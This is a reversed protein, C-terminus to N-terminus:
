SAPGLFTPEPQSIWYNQLWFAGPKFKRDGSRLVPANRSVKVAPQSATKVNAPAFPSVAPLAFRYCTMSPRRRHRFCRRALLRGAPRVKRVEWRLRPWWWLTGRMWWQGGAAPGCPLTSRMVPVVEIFVESMLTRTNANKNSTHQFTNKVGMGRWERAGIGMGTGSGAAAWVWEWGTSNGFWIGKRERSFERMEQSTPRILVAARFQNPKDSFRQFKKWFVRVVYDRFIRCFYSSIPRSQMNAYIQYPVNKPSHSLV